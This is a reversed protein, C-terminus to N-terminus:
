IGRHWKNHVNTVNEFTYLITRPAGLSAVTLKLIIEDQGGEGM